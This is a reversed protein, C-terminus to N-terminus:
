LNCHIERPVIRLTRLFNSMAGVNRDSTMVRVLHPYRKAYDFVIERTGDTSCDEGVVIEFPFTTGQALFSEIAQSIYAAHNYTICLISVLPEAM